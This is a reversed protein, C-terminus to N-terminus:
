IDLFSDGAEAAPAATGSVPTFVSAVDPRGAFPKDDRTKQIDNLGLSVGTKGKNKGGAAPYTFTNVTCRAWCGAYFDRQNIIPQVSENVLRPQFKTSINVFIAGEEFGEYKEAREKGDKFPFILGAPWKSRDTGWRAEAADKVLTKIATLDTGKPFLAVLSYKPVGNDDNEPTFVKPFAVRFEPTMVLKQKNENAV